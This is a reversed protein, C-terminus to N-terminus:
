KEHETCLELSSDSFFFEWLIIWVFLFTNKVNVDNGDQVVFQYMMGMMCWLSTCWEWWAVCVPVNNGDHVVFQYMMGMMCWLSTCSEWWAGCVPVDNDDHLVFQYMIGMMCWLSTCWEWWAVCVPVDNGDHLVFQYMMGDHVAFLYSIISLLLSTFYWCLALTLWHLHCSSQSSWVLPDSWYIHFHFIFQIILLMHLCAM